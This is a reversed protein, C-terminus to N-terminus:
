KKLYWIKQADPGRHRIKYICNKIKNYNYNFKNNDLSYIGAIGCM